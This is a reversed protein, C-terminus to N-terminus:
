VKKILKKFEDITLTGQKIIKTPIFYSLKKEDQCKGEMLLYKILNEKELEESHFDTDIGIMRDKIEEYDVNVLYSTM